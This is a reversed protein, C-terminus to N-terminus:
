AGTSTVGSFAPNTDLDVTCIDGPPQSFDLDGVAGDSGENEWLAPFPVVGTVNGVLNQVNYVAGIDYSTTDPSVLGTRRFNRWIDDQRATVGGTGQQYWAAITDHQTAPWTTAVQAGIALGQNAPAYRAGLNVGDGAKMGNVVPMLYRSGLEGFYQFGVMIVRDLHDSARVYVNCLGASGDEQRLYLFFGFVQDIATVGFTTSGIVWGESHGSPPDFAYNGFMFHDGGLDRLRICVGAAFGDDADGQGYALDTTQYLINLDRSFNGPEILRMANLTPGPVPTPPPSAGGPNSVDYAAGYSASM